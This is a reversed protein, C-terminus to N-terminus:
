NYSKKAEEDSADFSYADKMNIKAVNHTLVTPKLNIYFVKFNIGVSRSLTFNFKFHTKEFLAIKIKNKLFRCPVFVHIFDNLSFM